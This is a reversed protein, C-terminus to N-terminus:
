MAGRGELSDAADSSKTDDAFKSLTWEIGSDTM